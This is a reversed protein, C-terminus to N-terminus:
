SGTLLSEIYTMGSDSDLQALWFLAHKRDEESLRQDEIVEVLAKAALEEPLQSLAFIAEERVDQDKEDGIARQIEAAAEVAESQALWFWAQSRVEDDRDERGLRVLADVRGPAESQSLSFAAHERFDPDEDSFMLKEIEAEAEVARVQGLWFVADKRNELEDNTAAVDILTALSESGGHVSIAALAHMSTRSHPDIGQRLWRISADADVMGLDLVPEKTTVPCNASLARIMAVEGGKMLAYVQMQDVGSYGDESPGYGTRRGDLDCGEGYAKGRRWQYCCWDPAGEIADVQWTHWGDEALQSLDAHAMGAAFCSSILLMAVHCWQPTRKSFIM